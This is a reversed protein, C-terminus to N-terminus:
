VQVDIRGVPPGVLDEGEFQAIKEKSVQTSILVQDFVGALADAVTQGHAEFVQQVQPDRVYFGIRLSREVMALDVRVPGLRDLMLLLSVRHQPDGEAARGEKPYYVKLQVPQQQEKIPLLHTFVQYLDPEGARRVAQEQQQEVHTTLQNVAQRLFAVDKAHAELPGAGQEELGGLFNKLVLLHPKLDRAIIRQAQEAAQADQAPAAAANKEIGSELEGRSGPQIKLGLALKADPGAPAELDVGLKVESATKASQLMEPTLPAMPKAAGAPVQVPEPRGASQEVADALKLEFLIGRDEVTAQVWQTRQAAPAELPMPEFIAKLQALAQRVPEPWTGKALALAEPAAPSVVSATMSQAPATQIRGGDGLPTAPPASPIANLLREITNVVRQQDGSTLLTALAMRPHPLQPAAAQADAELRLQIPVGMQTVKLTLRQGVQVPLTTDALAKFRGMDILLRGDAEMKLVRGTLRDGVKLHAFQEAAREQDPALVAKFIATIDM